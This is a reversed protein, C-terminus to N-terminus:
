EVCEGAEFSELRGKTLTVVDTAQSLVQLDHSAVVITKGSARFALLLEIVQSATPKDLNSTPEDALLVEPNGALARALALRQCEGGSLENVLRDAFGALDLRELWEIARRRRLHRPIRRPILAYAINDILSLRPLLAFDQFVMGTRRRLRALQADSASHLAIGDFSLEGDTPREIAGLLSLLTSKGSGSPGRIALFSGKAVSFTVGDVARLEPARYRRFVKSVGKAEILNM